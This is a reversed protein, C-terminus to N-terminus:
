SIFELRKFMIHRDNQPLSECCSSPQFSSIELINISVKAVSSDATEFWFPHKTVIPTVFGDGAFYGDKWVCRVPFGYDMQNDSASPNWGKGFHCFFSSWRTYFTVSFSLKLCGHFHLTERSVNRPLEIKVVISINLLLHSCQIKKYTVHFMKKLLPMTM